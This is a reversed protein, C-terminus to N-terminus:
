TASFCRPLSASPMVPRRPAGSPARAPSSPGTCIGPLPSSASGVSIWFCIFNACPRILRGPPARASCPRMGISCCDIWDLCHCAPCCCCSLWNIRPSFRMADCNAAPCSQCACSACRVCCFQCALKSSCARCFACARAMSPARSCSERSFAAPSFSSRAKRMFCPSVLAGGMHPTTSVALPLDKIGLRPLSGNAVAVFPSPTNTLAILVISASRSSYRPLSSVVAPPLVRRTPPRPLSHFVGHDLPAPKVEMFLLRPLMM